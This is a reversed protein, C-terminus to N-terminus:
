GLEASNKRTKNCLTTTETHEPFGPENCRMKNVGRLGAAFNAAPLASTQRHPIGANRVSGRLTEDWKRQAAKM